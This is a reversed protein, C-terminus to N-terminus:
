IPDADDYIRIKQNTLSPNYFEQENFQVDRARIIRRNTPIWIRWINYAEYGVLYGIAARPALKALRLLKNIRVYAKCGFIRINSLDPKLQLWYLAKDGLYTALAEYPSQWSISRHPLRNQIYIATKAAEPWLFSPLGSDITMQRAMKSILVGYREAYGNQDPQYPPTTELNIRSSQDFFESLTREDDTYVILVRLDFQNQIFDIQNSLSQSLETKSSLDEAIQYKTVPDVSYSLYSTKALLLEFHILDWHLSEFPRNYQMPLRSIQRLSNALKCIECHSIPSSIDKIM